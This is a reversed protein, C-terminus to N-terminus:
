VTLSIPTLNYEFLAPLLHLSILHKAINCTAFLNWYIMSSTALWMRTTATRKWRISLTCWARSTGLPTNILLTICHISFGFTWSPYFQVSPVPNHLFRNYHVWRNVKTEKTAWWARRALNARLLLAFLQLAFHDHKVSYLAEWQCRLAWEEHRLTSCVQISEYKFHICVLCHSRIVDYYHIAMAVSSSLHEIWFTRYLVAGLFICGSLISPSPPLDYLLIASIQWGYVQRHLTINNQCVLM